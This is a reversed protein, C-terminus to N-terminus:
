AFGGDLIEASLPPWLHDIQDTMTKNNEKGSWESIKVAYVSTQKLEDDTIPRYEVGPQMKPFYKSILGYLLPRVAESDDILQAEGFVVVSRYQVSFELAANSPLLKGMEECSICVKPNRDINARVRGLINSHFIIQHEEEDYWFLTANCFPMGDWATAVTCVRAQELFEVIWADERARKQKNRRIQTPPRVTPDFNQKPM